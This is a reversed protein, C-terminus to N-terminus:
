TMYVALVDRRADVHQITVHVLDEPRLKICTSLPLNCELMYETLLIRCGNRLKNLVTAEEKRGVRKELFRLLWYRNRRYQLWLVADMPEQLMHLIHDIEEQSYPAELGLAARIQRQTALDFYKRIPSTATVYAEVGLGSHRAPESHLAFRSLLKRQMWNQFLTGSDKKYLRSKPDAQSRFVAPLKHEALFKGMLWNAMIMLEAVLMRGPSERDVRNVAPDGNPDIWINVEPLSIQLAGQSLRKERFRRAIDYLMVIEPDEAAMNNVESYTLQRQVNIIGALIEYEIIEANHDLNIMVSIAPRMTGVKLSCLDEALIAPLMPIKHDPMYIASGRSIAEQDLPSGKKIFHGVDTIHVGLCYTDGKKEISIADDFDLTVQGDITLVPLATLDRRAPTQLASVLAPGECKAMDAAVKELKPSFMYPIKARYLDINENVHWQGLKVLIQFAMELDNINAVKLISKGMEYHPSDKGYLFASKLINVVHVMSEPLDKQASSRNSLFRKLWKGGSQIIKEKRETEAAQALIQDVRQPTNPFFRNMKFKFYLRDYFFARVVASEHDGARFDPFCFETMTALDIWEQESHLVEWLEKIDIAASLTSRKQAIEKLTHVQKNRGMSTDMRSQSKHSLRNVSLTTERNHESLLRLRLKKVEMITACVIKERDVYEVITGPEMVFFWLM